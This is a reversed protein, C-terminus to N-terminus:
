QSDEVIKALSVMNGNTGRVFFKGRADREIQIEMWEVAHTGRLLVQLSGCHPCARFWSGCSNIPEGYRHIGAWCKIKRILNRM